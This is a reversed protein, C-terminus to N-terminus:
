LDPKWMILADEQNDPYYEKRFAVPAFGHKEYLAIAARNSARVELTARGAGRKRAGELLGALLVDAVGRRRCEPSVALNLIHCEDVVLWWCAYGLVRGPRSGDGDPPPGEAVILHSNRKEALEARFARESWPLSFSRAEIAAVVPVDEPAMPRMRIRELFKQGCVCNM